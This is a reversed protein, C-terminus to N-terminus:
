DGSEFLDELVAFPSELRGAPDPTATNLGSEAGRVLGRCSPDCVPLLPMALLVEDRLMPELDLEDGHLEYGDDGGKREAIQDIAIEMATDRDELCRTCTNRVTVTVTGRVVVGGSAASLVLDAVLPPDPLVHSLEVAWDVPTSIRHPRPEGHRRVLDGVHVLFPSAHPM